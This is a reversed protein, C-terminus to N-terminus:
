PDYGREFLIGQLFRGEPHSVRLDMPIFFYGPDVLEPRDRAVRCM